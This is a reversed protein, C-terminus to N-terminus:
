AREKLITSEYKKTLALLERFFSCIKESTEPDSIDVGMARKPKYGGWENWKDATLFLRRGKSTVFIAKCFFGSVLLEQDSYLRVTLGLKVLEEKISILYEKM